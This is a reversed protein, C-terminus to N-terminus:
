TGSGTEPEPGLRPLTFVVCTGGGPEPEIWTSGGHREVIRRCIPLGMGAGAPGKAGGLRRFWLFVEEAREPPIGRGNDRVRFEWMGNRPGAEVRIRPAEDGRFRVANALLNQFVRVLQQRDVRVRPLPGAEIRAGSEKILRGLNARAEALCAAAEVPEPPLGRTSVRSYELLSEIMAEMRRVGEVAFAIFERAPPDLRGGYRRELLQVYSAVVRLPERLDHSAVYAFRELERNSEELSRAYTVAAEEARKRRDVDVIVGLLSPRGGHAAVPLFRTHVWVVSGDPRLLRHEYARPRGRSALRDLVRGAARREPEPLCRQWVEPNARLKVGPVGVLSEAQPSVYGLVWRDPALLSRHIEFVAAPGKEVLARYRGALTQIRALQTEQVDALEDLVSALYGFEGPSETLASLPGRDGRQLARTASVLRELPRTVGTRAVGAALGVALALSALGWVFSRFLDRRLGLAAPEPSVGAVAWLAGASGGPLDVRNWAYVRVRGDLGQVRAVAGGSRLAGLLASGAMSRGAWARGGPQCAVVVGAETVTLYEDDGTGPVAEPSGPTGLDIVAVVAGRIGGREDRIPAAMPLGVRGAIRCRIPGAVVPDAATSTRQFYDRHSADLDTEPSRNSCVVHGIEDLVALSALSTRGPWALRALLGACREPHALLLEAASAVSNTLTRADDVAHHVYAAYIRARVQAEVELASSLERHQELLDWGTLGLFPALSALVLWVLRTRVSM